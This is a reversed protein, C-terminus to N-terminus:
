KRYDTPTDRTAEFQRFGESRTLELEGADDFTIFLAEIEPMSEVMKMGEEVGLVSLVTGLIDTTLTDSGIVTVSPVHDAPRGTRPDVIHSYRRGDIEVYRQYNGSTSVACDTLELVTILARPNNPDRPDQIGVRWPKGGPRRGIARIDGAMAILASEIGRKTLLDAVREAIFGKGLGGLDIHIEEEPIAVTRKEPDLLLRDAGVLARAEALAAESPLAKQEGARRWVALLPRITIDFAGGSTERWEVGAEIAAYLPESVRVPKGAPANNLRALEAEASHTSLVEELEDVLDLADALNRDDSDDATKPLTVTVWTGLAAQSRTEVDREHARAAYQAAVIFVVVLTTAAIAVRWFMRARDRQESNSPNVERM